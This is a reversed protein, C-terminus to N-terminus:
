MTVLYTLIVSSGQEIYVAAGIYGPINIFQSNSVDITSALSKISSCGMHGNGFISINSLRVAKTHEFVIGFTFNSTLNLTISSIEIKSCHIWTLSVSFEFAISVMNHEESLGLMTLNTVNVVKLSVGLRHIGPLFNFLTNDVFYTNPHSAYEELTLCPLENSSCMWGNELPTVYNTSFVTDSETLCQRFPLIMFLYFLLYARIFADKRGAM